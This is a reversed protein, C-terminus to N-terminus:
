VKISGDKMGFLIVPYDSSMCFSSLEEDKSSIFHDYDITKEMKPLNFFTVKKKTWVAMVDNQNRKNKSFIM